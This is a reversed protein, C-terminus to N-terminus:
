IEMGGRDGTQEQEPGRPRRRGGTVDTNEHEAAFDPDEPPPQDRHEPEGVARRKRDGDGDHTSAM